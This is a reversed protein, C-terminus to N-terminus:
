VRQRRFRSLARAPSHGSRAAPKGNLTIQPVPRAPNKTFLMILAGVMCAVGAILFARRPTAIIMPIMLLDPPIPFFSSEIFAVVALAWLAHKGSALSLTWDYLARVTFTDQELRGASMM